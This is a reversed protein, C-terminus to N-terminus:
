KADKMLAAKSLSVAISDPLPQLVKKGKGTAVKAKPAPRENLKTLADSPLHQVVGPWVKMVQQVTGCSDLLEKMTKMLADKEQTVLNLTELISCAQEYGPTDAPITPLNRADWINRWSDPVPYFYKLKFGFSLAKGNHEFKACFEDQRRLFQEPLANMHIMLDHGVLKAFMADANFCKNIAANLDNVRKKFPAEISQLIAARLGYSLHVTSM